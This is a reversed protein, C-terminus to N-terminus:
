DGSLDWEFTPPTFSTMGLVIADHGVVGRSVVIPLSPDHPLAFVADFDVASLWAAPDVIMTASSGPGTIEATTRAGHIATDSVQQPIVDVEFRFTFADGGRTASGELVASHGDVAGETPAAATQTLFYSIGFDYTTSRVTGTVGELVGFDSPEASLGDIVRTDLRELLASECLGSSALATACFYIPGVSVDARTLTVTWGQVDIVSTGTGRATFPVSVFDRGTDACAAVLVLSLALCRTM